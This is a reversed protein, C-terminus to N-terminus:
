TILVPGMIFIIFYLHHSHPGPIQLPQARTCNGWKLVRPGGLRLNPISVVLVSRM